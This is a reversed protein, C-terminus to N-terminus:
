HNLKDHESPHHNQGLDTIKGTKEGGRKTCVRDYIEGGPMYKGKRKAKM